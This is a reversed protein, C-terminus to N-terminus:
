IRNKEDTFNETDKIEKESWCTRFRRSPFISFTDVYINAPSLSLSCVPKYISKERIFMDDSVLHSQDYVRIDNDAFINISSPRTSNLKGHYILSPLYSQIDSDIINITTNKELCNRTCKENIWFRLM